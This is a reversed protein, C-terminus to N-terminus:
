TSEPPQPQRVRLIGVSVVAWLVTLGLWILCDGWRPFGSTVAPGLPASGVWGVPRSLDGVIYAGLSGLAIGLAVVLVIREPRGLGRVWAM